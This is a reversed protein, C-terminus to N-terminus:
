EIMCAHAERYHGYVTISSTAQTEEEIDTSKCCLRRMLGRIATRLPKFVAMMMLPTVIPPLSPLLFDIFQRFFATGAVGLGDNFSSSFLFPVFATYTSVFMVINLIVLLGTFKVMAIKLPREDSLSASHKKLFVISLIVVGISIIRTPIDILIVALGIGIYGPPLPNSHCIVGDIQVSNDVASPFFYPLSLLLTVTFMAGLVIHLYLLKIKHQGYRIVIFVLISLTALLYNRMAVNIHYFVTAGHCFIKGAQMIHHLFLYQAVAFMLVTSSSVFGMAAISIMLNRQAKIKRFTKGTCLGAITLTSLFLQPPVLLTLLVSVLATYGQVGLVSAFLSESGNGSINLVQAM